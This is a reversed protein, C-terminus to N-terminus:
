VYAKKAAMRRADNKAHGGRPLPAKSDRRASDECSGQEEKQEEDKGREPSAIAGETSFDVPFDLRDASATFRDGNGFEFLGVFGDWGFLVGRGDQEFGKGKQFGVPWFRDFGKSFKACGRRVVREGFLFQGEGPGEELGISGGQAHEIEGELLWVGCEAQPPM